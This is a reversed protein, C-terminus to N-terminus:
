ILGGKIKGAEYGYKGYIYNFSKVANEINKELEADEYIKLAKEIKAIYDPEVIKIGDLYYGNSNNPNAIRNDKRFEGDSTYFEFSGGDKLHNFTKFVKM